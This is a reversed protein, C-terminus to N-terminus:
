WGHQNYSSVASPSKKGYDFGASEWGGFNNSADAKKAKAKTTTTSKKYGYKIPGVKDYSKSAGTDKSSAKHKDTDIGWGQAGWKDADENDWEDYSEAGYSKAQTAVYSEEILLDQDRGWADWDSDAKQYDLSGAAKSAAGQGKGYGSKGKSAASGYAKDDEGKWTDYDEAWQDDDARVKKAYGKNKFEKAHVADYSKGWRGDNDVGYAQKAWADNDYGGLAANWTGSAANKDNYRKKQSAGKKDSSAAYM